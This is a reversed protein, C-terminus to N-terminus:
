PFRVKIEDIKDLWEQETKEGRQWQFIIPDSELRYSEARLAANTM